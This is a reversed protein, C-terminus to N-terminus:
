QKMIGLPFPTMLVVCQFKMCCFLSSNCGLINICFACNLVRYRTDLPYYIIYFYCFLLPLQFLCGISFTDTNKTKLHCSFLLNVQPTNFFCFLFCFFLFLFLDMRGTFVTLMALRNALLSLSLNIFHYMLGYFPQKSFM